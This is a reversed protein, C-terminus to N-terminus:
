CEKLGYTDSNRSSKSNTRKRKSRPESERRPVPQIKGLVTLRRNGEYGTNPHSFWDPNPTHKSPSIKDAKKNTPCFFKAMPAQSTGSTQTSDKKKKTNISGKPRGRQTAPKNTTHKSQDLVTKPRAGKHIPTSIIEENASTFSLASTKDCVQQIDTPTNPAFNDSSVDPDM